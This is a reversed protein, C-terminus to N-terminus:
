SAGNSITQHEVLKRFLGNKITMLDQYTGSEVAKGGDIVIINDASKITSLRHAITLVTRGVLLRELAEQVLYESEADLASTAEDLILIKPNKLIARAIAVRQRQGGSLLLGRDGVVTNFGDPFDKVFNYANAEKAAAIIEELSVNEPNEAGYAINQAISTSFLTPEQSVRGIKRRLWHPDLDRIDHGDLTIHGKTPDYFRLLLAGVTSKGSGSPGVLATFSGAPIDLSLDTFIPADPRSPYSFSMQHFTLKGAISPLQLQPKTLYDLEICPKRDLLNWIRESAAIGRNFETLFTTIGNLSTAVYAAYMIFASLDGVTINSEMMMYSGFYFVSIIVCNGSFGTCGWFVARALSEQYSLQLVKEVEKTYAQAEKQEHSFDRVTRITAIREEAVHTAEALSDQVKKTIKRLYRGYIIAGAALPPVIGMSILTLKLSIFTMMSIGVLTQLISRLGDSINQSLSQAVVLTDSSLRNILEGTKTTDFFAVEQSLVRKFLQERLRKVIRQGSVQLLYVRGFNALAGLVFIVFLSGCFKKLNSVVKEKESTYLLDVIKGIFYPVSLTVATSICMCVVAGAINWKEPKALGTLRRLDNWKPKRKEIGNPKLTKDGVKKCNLQLSSRFIRKFLILPTSKNSSQGKQKALIHFSRPRQFSSILNKFSTLSNTKILGSTWPQHCYASILQMSCGSINSMHLCRSISSSRLLAAM